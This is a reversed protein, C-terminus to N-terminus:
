SLFDSTLDDYTEGDEVVEVDLFSAGMNAAEGAFLDVNYWKSRIEDMTEGEVYIESRFCIRAVM